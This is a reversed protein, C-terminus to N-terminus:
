GADPLPSPRVAAYPDKEGEALGSPPASGVNGGSTKGNKEHRDWTMERDLVGAKWDKFTKVGFSATTMGILITTYWAPLAAVYNIFISADWYWIAGFLPQYLPATWFITFYEDKWSGKQIDVGAQITTIEVQRAAEVKATKHAFWGQAIGSVASFIGAVGTLLGLM